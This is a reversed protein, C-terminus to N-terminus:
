SEITFRKTIGSQRTWWHDQEQAYGADDAFANPQKLRSVMQHLHSKADAIDRFNGQLVTTDTVQGDADLTRVKIHLM